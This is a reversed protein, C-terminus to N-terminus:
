RRRESSLTGFPHGFAHVSASICTASGHRTSWGTKSNGGMQAINQAYEGPDEGRPLVPSSGPTGMKEMTWLLCDDTSHCQGPCNPEKVIAELMGWFCDAKHEVEQLSEGLFGVWEACGLGQILLTGCGM